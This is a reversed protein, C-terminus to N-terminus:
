IIYIFKVADLSSLLDSPNPNSTINEQPIPNSNKNSAGTLDIAGLNSFIDGLDNQVKVGGTVGTSGGGFIDSFDEILNGTPNKNKVVGNKNSTPQVDFINNSTNISSKDFKIILSKNSEDADNDYEDL